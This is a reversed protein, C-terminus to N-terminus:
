LDGILAAVDQGLVKTDQVAKELDTSPIDKYIKELDTQIQLLDKGVKELDILVQKVSM